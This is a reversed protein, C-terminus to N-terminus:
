SFSLLKFARHRMWRSKFYATLLHQASRCCKMRNWILVNQTAALGFWAAMFQQWIWHFADNQPALCCCYEWTQNLNLANKMSNIEVLNSGSRFQEWACIWVRDLRHGFACKSSFAYFNCLKDMWGDYINVNKMRNSGIFKLLENWDKCQM